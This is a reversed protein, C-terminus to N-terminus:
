NKLNEMSCKMLYRCAYNSEIINEEQSLRLVEKRDRSLALREYQM